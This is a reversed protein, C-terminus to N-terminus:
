FDENHQSQAVHMQVESEATKRPALLCWTAHKFIFPSEIDQKMALATQRPCKV